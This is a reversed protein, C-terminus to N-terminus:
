DMTKGREQNEGDADLPTEMVMEGLAMLQGCDETCVCLTSDIWRRKEKGIEEMVVVVVVAAMDVLSVGPEDSGGVSVVASSSAGVCLNLM